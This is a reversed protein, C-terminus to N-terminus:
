HAYGTIDARLPQFFV